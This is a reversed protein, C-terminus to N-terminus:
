LGAIESAVVIQRFPPLCADRTSVVPSDTPWTLGFSDWRVGRDLDPLHPGFVVYALTAPGDLVYFGHAVGPPVLVTAPSASDLIISNHQGYTQSAPRLDLLADFVKGAICTVYKWAASRGVPLHMGRLVNSRSVSWFCQTGATASHANISCLPMKCLVGREDEFAKNTLFRLGSIQDCGM